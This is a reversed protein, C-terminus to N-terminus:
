YHKVLGALLLTPLLWLVQYLVMAIPTLLAFNGVSTLYYALVVGAAAGIYSLITATRVAKVARRSGAVSEVLPMLGERCIAVCPQEGQQEALQALALRTSVDPYVPKADVGFKRKILGPTVNGSRVALVPVIHFRKLTRLAWEANRSPQYKVAFVATLAGDVALFVGTSLKMDRPLAVKRKKMFYASGMLVTEGRINAEVGGEECYNVWEVSLHFGGEATLQRELLPTLSSGAARAVSAAYSVARSREEGFVKYGNLTVTGAPFLDDDTLVLRRPRSVAKAGAYGAAACGSRSLRRSLYYMPLAGSLPIGLGAGATTLATLVWPFDSMNGGSFCVVGSLVAATALVLPLAYNQWRRAPDPKSCLRYFGEATGQQRCVGAATVSAVYPVTGNLVLLHYANRLASAELYLGWQCALILLAGAAAYPTALTSGTVMGCVCCILQTLVAVAACLECGARGERLLSAAQKWVPMCALATLLLGAGLAACRLLSEDLWASPLKELEQLVAAVVLALAPLMGWILGGRLRSCRRKAERLVDEPLPEPEPPEEPEPEEEPEDFLQETDQFAPRRRQEAAPRHFRELVAALRERLPVPQAIVGDFSKVYELARRMILPDFVCFGDDSFVRVQARSTAMAGLEALREGKQGVTVAGIPQVTAYGAAEGLALEQEVVGATDAVPSTNPMAFVATFGGAAAARTGTLITESAEYGPERLHTHLDVLGPLAVLGAADIVRAGSRTLGTGIEAIRGDEIMIDASEAGLLQAGTIVLTENM